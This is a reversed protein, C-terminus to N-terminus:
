YFCILTVFSGEPRTNFEKPRSRPKSRPPPPHEQAGQTDKLLFRKDCVTVDKQVRLLLQSTLRQPRDQTDLHLSRTPFVPLTGAHGTPAKVSSATRVTQLPSGPSKIPSLGM